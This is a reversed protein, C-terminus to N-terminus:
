KISGLAISLFIAIVFIIIAYFDYIKNMSWVEQLSITGSTAVSTAVFTIISDYASNLGFSKPSIYDNVLPTIYGPASGTSYVLYFIVMTPYVKSGFTIAVLAFSCMSLGLVILIKRGILDSLSGLLLESPLVLLCGYFGLTGAIKGADSQAVSYDEVLIYTFCSVKIFLILTVVFSLSWMGLVNIKKTGPTLTMWMFKPEDEEQSDQSVQDLKM